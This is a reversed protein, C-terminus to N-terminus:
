HWSESDPWLPSHTELELVEYCSKGGCCCGCCPCCCYVQLSDKGTRQVRPQKQKFPCCSLPFLLCSGGGGISYNHNPSPQSIIEWLLHCRCCFGRVNVALRMFTFMAEVVGSVFAVSCYVWLLGTNHTLGCPRWPGSARSLIFGVILTNVIKIHIFYILWFCCFYM